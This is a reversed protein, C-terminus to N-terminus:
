RSLTSAVIDGVRVPGRTTRELRGFAHHPHVDTIRVLGLYAPPDMRYVELTQNRGLGKDSGVSVQVLTPDQPHVHEIKGELYVGPPNAKGKATTDTAGTTAKQLAGTLETVRALMQQLRDELAKRANEEAVAANRFKVVDSQQKVIVDDRQKIIDLQAKVEEKLRNAEALLGQATLNAATAQRQHEAVETKYVSEMADREKQLEVLKQREANLEAQYKRALILDKNTTEAMTESNRRAIDLEKKAAEYEKRWNTRTAFDVVLFGGVAVAFVLNLIVLIKGVINM